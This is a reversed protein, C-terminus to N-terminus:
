SQNLTAQCHHFRYVSLCSGIFFKFLNLDASIGKGCRGMGARSLASVVNNRKGLLFLFNSPFIIEQFQFYVIPSRIMCLRSLKLGIVGLGFIVFSDLYKKWMVKSIALVLSVEKVVHKSVNCFYSSVFILGM